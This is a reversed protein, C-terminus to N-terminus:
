SAANVCSNATCSHPHGVNGNGSQKCGKGLVEDTSLEVTRLRPKVFPAKAANESSGPERNPM